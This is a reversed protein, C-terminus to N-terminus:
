QLQLGAVKAAKPWRENEAKVFAASQEPTSSSADMGHGALHRQTEPMALVKAVDANIKALV